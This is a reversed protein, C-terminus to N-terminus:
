MCPLSQVTHAPLPGRVELSSHPIGGRYLAQKLNEVDYRLSTKLASGFLAIPDHSRTDLAGRFFGVM